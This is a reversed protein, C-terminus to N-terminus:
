RIREWVGRLKSPHGPPRPGDPSRGPGLVHTKAAALPVKELFTDGVNKLFSLVLLDGFFGWPLRPFGHPQWIQGGQPGLYNENGKFLTRMSKVHQPRLRAFNPSGLGMRMGLDQQPM